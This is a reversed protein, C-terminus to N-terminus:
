AIVGVTPRSRKERVPDFELALHTIMQSEQGVPWFSARFDKTTRKKKNKQKQTQKTKLKLTTQNLQVMCFVNTAAAVTFPNEIIEELPRGLVKRSSLGTM